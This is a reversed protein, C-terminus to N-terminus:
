HLDNIGAEVQLGTAYAVERPLLALVGFDVLSLYNLVQLGILWLGYDHGGIRRLLFPTLWLGAVMILWMYAYGLVVGDFFRKTRSAPNPRRSNQDVVPM